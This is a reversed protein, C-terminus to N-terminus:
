PLPLKIKVRRGSRTIYDSPTTTTPSLEEFIYAPKVRDISVTTERGRLSLTFTKDDRRIVPHPGSYPPKLAGRVTDDRLFVHSCSSLDKFVFPKQRSHRSAPSPRLTQMQQRLRSVYSCPDNNLNESKDISILEGPLRLPEGFVLEAPSTKMDEKIAARIGLLVLPLAEVWTMNSHCMIAAKLQRHFREVMGNSQPHYSTTRHHEFGITKGLIRFLESEFQRGQDTTIRTPVGFRSIWCTLLASAASEATINEIPLVEPWRTFRDVVTLCYKYSSVSPLPGIFDIHIHSFRASPSTFTSFPSHVHRSIKARQCSNCSRAWIRCDKKIGPWVFRSSILATSSKVGPHSLNHLSDFVQRRLSAPVYPRNTAPSIDCYIKVDSGPIPILELKLSQGNTLLDQLEVDNKQADALTSLNISNACSLADVRSLTDAVVNNSGSIHQIDTTFQSIFTLQNLQIPPLKERKQQFAFILPKHDTYVTFNHVQLIYRFHQIAAYVAYLERYFAPWEQQKTSMKSSFFAIPQWTSDKFQQLCAGVSVSSADTFLAIPSSHDPHNLLTANSLGEKCKSFSDEMKDTWNIHQSSKLGALADHLASQHEAANPIFRRYFNIMGLFRRLDRALIPRKFEQIATVRDSLPKTGAASVEYGLFTVSSSCVVSKKANILIGHECLRKFLIQLHEMHEEHSSSSVLIDDVYAFCFDLGSLVEDIFRQFTQGANRLGFSMFPFEYLGFPTTIATKPIDDPNVPIQTYAKVLDIVSFITCGHLNSNFDYIHRVPYRDPITRANLQRYDGCPRWGDEKKPVMHLPSAWPSDSRRAIGEQVMADFESKAIKLRDPALRRPRCFVPPGDTTRIFHLTSHRVERLTGSPRILEPFSSFIEHHPSDESLAKVSIQSNQM